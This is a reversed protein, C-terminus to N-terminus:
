PIKLPPRTSFHYIDLDVTCINGYLVAAGNQLGGGPRSDGNGMQAIEPINVLDARAADAHYLYLPRLAKDGGAVRPHHLPHGNM